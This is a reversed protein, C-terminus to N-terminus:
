PLFQDVFAFTTSTNFPYGSPGAAALGSYHFDNATVSAKPKCPYGAPTDSSNLDAVCFDQTLALNFPLLSLLPVLVLLIQAKAM